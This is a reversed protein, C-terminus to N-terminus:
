TVYVGWSGDKEGREVCKKGILKDFLKQTVPLVRHKNQPHGLIGKLFVGKQRYNAPLRFVFAGCVM